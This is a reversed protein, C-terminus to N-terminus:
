HSRHSTVFVPYFDFGWNLYNNQKQKLSVKIHLLVELKRALCGRVSLRVSVAAHLLRLLFFAFM